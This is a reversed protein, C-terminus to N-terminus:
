VFYKGIEIFYVVKKYAAPEDKKLKRLDEEARSSYIIKYMSM